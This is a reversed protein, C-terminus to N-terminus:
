RPGGKLRALLNRGQVRALKPWARPRTAGALLLPMPDMYSKRELARGDPGLTVRDVVDWSVPRGGLTGSLMLDILVVREGAAWDRVEGHLDPILEFLPRAFRERFADHGVLTPIQPQILRVQPDLVPIFHDVFADAGAPARWGEAFHEVWAEAMARDDRTSAATASM